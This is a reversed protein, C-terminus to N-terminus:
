RGMKRFGGRVLNSVSVNGGQATSDRAPLGESLGKRAAIM